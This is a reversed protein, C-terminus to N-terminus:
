ILTSEPSMQYLKNISLIKYEINCTGAKINFHKKSENSEIQKDIFIQM